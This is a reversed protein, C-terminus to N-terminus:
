QPLHKAVIEVDKDGRRFTQRYRIRTGLSKGVEDLLSIAHSNWSAHDRWNQSTSGELREDVSVYQSGGDDSATGASPRITV